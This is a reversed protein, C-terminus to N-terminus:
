KGFRYIGHNTAVTFGLQRCVTNADNRNFGTNCVLGWEGNCYVEVLGSGTFRTEGALRVSGSFEIM